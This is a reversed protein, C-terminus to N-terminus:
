NIILAHKSGKQSSIDGCENGMIEVVSMEGIYYDVVSVM